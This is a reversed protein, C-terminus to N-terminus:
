KRVKYNKLRRYGLRVTEDVWPKMEPLACMPITEKPDKIFGWDKIAKPLKDARVWFPELEIGHQPRSAQGITLDMIEASYPFYIVTHFDSAKKEPFGLGIIWGGKEILDEKNFKGQKRQQKHIKWGIENAIIFCVRQPHCDFGLRRLIKSAVISTTDCVGENLNMQEGGKYIMRLRLDLFESLEKLLMAKRDEM